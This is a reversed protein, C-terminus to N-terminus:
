EAVIVEDNDNWPIKQLTLNLKPHDYDVRYIEEVRKELEPTYYQKMLQNAGTAHRVSKPTAFISANQYPGWGTAGYEQYAGLRRLLKRIDDEATEVHGVFNIYPWIEREMRFSEPMWHADTCNPITYSVFQEFSDVAHGCHRQIYSANRRKGKDLYASLIREKPDRVLIARTWDSGTLMANADQISYHHLYKLGNKSPDHVFSDGLTLTNNNKTMRVLLHKMVTCAVKPITFFLLKYKEVVIPSADWNNKSYIFSSSKLLLPPSDDDSKTSIYQQQQWWWRSGKNYLQRRFDDDQDVEYSVRPANYLRWCLLLVFVISPYHCQRQVRRRSPPLEM